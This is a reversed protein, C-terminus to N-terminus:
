VSWPWKKGRAGERDEIIAELADLVEPIGKKMAIEGNRPPYFSIGFCDRCQEIFFHTYGGSILPPRWRDIHDVQVDNKCHCLAM